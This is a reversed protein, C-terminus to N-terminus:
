SGLQALGATTNMKEVPVIIAYVRLKGGTITGTQTAILVDLTDATAFFTPDYVTSAGPAYANAAAADLDFGDVYHDVDGGTVGFDLTADTSTGTMPELVQLGAMIVHSGAPVSITEIVDAAALASGKEEAVKAFDIVWEAMYPTWAGWRTKQGGVKAISITAM